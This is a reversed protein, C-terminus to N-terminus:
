GTPHRHETPVEQARFVTLGANLSLTFRDRCTIRNGTWNHLSEPAVVRELGASDADTATAHDALLYRDNFVTLSKNEMAGMHFDSVAVINFLDLDYELGFRTEDWRMSRKLADM